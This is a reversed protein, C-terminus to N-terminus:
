KSNPLDLIIIIKKHGKESVGGWGLCCCVDILNSRHALIFYNKIM